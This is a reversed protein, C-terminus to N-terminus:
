VFKPAVALMAAWQHDPGYGVGNEHEEQAKHFAERMERTLEIPVLAFGRAIFAAAVDKGVAEMAPVVMLEKYAKLLNMGQEALVKQSLSLTAPSGHENFLVLAATNALTFLRREAEDM